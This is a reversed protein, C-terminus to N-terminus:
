GAVLEEPAVDWEEEERLVSAIVFRGMIKGMSFCDGGVVGHQPKEDNEEVVVATTLFNMGAAPSLELPVGGWDLEVKGSKRVNLRGILGGQPLRQSRFGHQQDDDDDDDDDDFVDDQTLDVSLGAEGLPAALDDFPDAEAKVKVRPRPAAVQKLPPILPPFQFLYMRGDKNAPGETKSEGDEETVTVAGLENALLNMDTLIAREESDQPPEKRPKTAPAVETEKVPLQRIKDDLDMEDATGPEKKIFDTDAKADWVGQEEPQKDLPVDGDGDVWLSEEEGNAHEAAELEATTAVVIGTEKHERRYIGMPMSSATRNSLAAMMAEDDSDLEEDPSMVHLKDANIRAERMRSGDAQAFGKGDSRAHRGGGGGGGGGGFWGGARASPGAFGGGFPGSATSAGRGWGGGRSGMADGRSRKSRYRLRGRARREEAARESAKQAELRALSDRDAEDRRVAKPKFRGAAPARTARTTTGRRVSGRPNTAGDSAPATQPSSSSSASVDDVNEGATRRTGSAAAGRLAGRATTRGRNM